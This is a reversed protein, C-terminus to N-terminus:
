HIWQPIASSRSLHRSNMKSRQSRNTKSGCVTQNQYRNPQRTGTRRLLLIHNTSEVPSHTIMRRDRNGTVPKQPRTPIRVTPEPITVRGERRSPESSDSDSPMESSSTNERPPVGRASSPENRPGMFNHRTRDYQIPSAGTALASPVSPIHARMEKVLEQQAREADNMPVLADTHSDWWVYHAKYHRRIGGRTQLPPANCLQCQWPGPVSRQKRTTRVNPGGQRRRSDEESSPRATLDHGTETVGSPGSSAGPQGAGNGVTPQVSTTTKTPSQNRVDSSPVMVVVSTVNKNGPPLPKKFLEVPRGSSEAAVSEQNPKKSAEEHTGSESRSHHKHSRDKSSRRKERRDRKQHNSSHKEKSSRSSSSAKETQSGSSTTRDRNATTDPESFGISVRECDSLDSEDSSSIFEKSINKKAMTHGLKEFTSNYIVNTPSRKVKIAELRGTSGFIVDHTQNDAPQRAYNLHGAPGVKRGNAWYADKAQKAWELRLKVGGGQYSALKHSITAGCTSLIQRLKISRINKTKPGGCTRKISGNGNPNSSSLPVAALNSEPGSIKPQADRNPQVTQGEQDFKLWVPPIEGEYRILRDVHCIQLRAGPVKQIVYNVDNLIRVIRYPGDTLKRFKRGRGATLRPCFFWVYSNLPFHVARVRQDYRRKARDFTVRLQDSVIQYAKRMRERVKESYEETDQFAPESRDLFLDIGVRPERLFVLYFPSFTTSTHKATNYAFCM